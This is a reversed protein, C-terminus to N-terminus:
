PIARQPSMSRFARLWQAILAGKLDGQRQNEEITTGWYFSIWGDAHPRSGDIFQKLEEVSCRLPFTEEIVVPKGVEYVKLAALAEDVQDKRPYFHVSVFDLPRGVEPAYFLPKSGKFTLAWPIVGVTIMHRRDVQRIAATLKRVWAAAVEQRTRGALDLAIRQVFYKGGFEGALWETEAKQGPLIPENMLDYCFIAPSGKCVEAVARWFRAQVEWRQDEKLADYWPPVDQKHYCGLGTVDLYLGTREALRVLMALRELSTTDPQEATKMFRPLQLHIRVVNAGLEKIERFDEAVVKWHEHWYDELLSGADDHDYNVGWVVFKRGSPSAVFHTGDRSPRIWELNEPQPDVVDAPKQQAPCPPVAVSSVILGALVVLIRIQKMAVVKM